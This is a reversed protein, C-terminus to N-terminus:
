IGRRTDHEDDEIEISACYRVMGRDDLNATSWDFGPTEEVIYRKIKEVLDAPLDGAMLARRLARKREARGRARDQLIEPVSAVRNQEYPQLDISGVEKAEDYMMSRRVIQAKHIRLRLECLAALGPSIADEGLKQMAADVAPHRIIPSISPEVETM